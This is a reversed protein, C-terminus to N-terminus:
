KKCTGLQLFSNLEPFKFTEMNQLAVLRLYNLFRELSAKREKLVSEKSRFLTVRSPFNQFSIEYRKKFIKKLDRFESFRRQVLYSYSKKKVVIQYVM